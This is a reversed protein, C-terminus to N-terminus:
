ELAGGVPLGSPVRAPIARDVTGDGLAELFRIIEEGQRGSVPQLGALAPDLTRDLGVYFAMVEPLTAVSGDHMYPGTRTVHRLSPTRFGDRAAGTAPDRETVGLRHIKFDSFMPGAHCGACGADYFAILGRKQAADLAGDDGAMFRDFSTDPMVLTREFSAIAQTIRRRDIGASGFAATFRARYEPIADLRAVLTEFLAGEAVAHGRMEAAALLPGEAQAELSRARNDWFMPARAPDYTAGVTALGNWAADLVTPANRPVERAFGTFSGRRPGLGRGGAGLSRARGDAYDFDPHHCTACAVDRDGSLIPDWFLLRGLAVREPTAPSEAPAVVRAPLAGIAEDGTPTLPGACAGLAAAALLLAGHFVTGRAASM